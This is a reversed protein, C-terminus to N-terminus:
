RINEHAPRPPDLVRTRANQRVKVGHPESQMMPSRLNSCAGKINDDVIRVKKAYSEREGVKLMVM